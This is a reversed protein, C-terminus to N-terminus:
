AVEPLTNTLTLTHTGAEASLRQVLRADHTAVVKTSTRAQALLLDAVAHAHRDDLSATPEDVLLFAPQRVLARALAVRQMQGGSLRTARQDAWAQMGLTALVQDVAQTDVPLGACVYPMAVQEWVTFAPLLRAHQPLLGIHQGRWLDRRSPPLDYPNMDGMHLAGQRPTLLGALAALLTSKGTGSNGQLLLTHGQPVQVDDFALMPGGEHQLVLSQWRLM